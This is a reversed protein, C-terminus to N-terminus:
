IKVIIDNVAHKYFTRSVIKQKPYILRSKRSKTILFKNTLQPDVTDVNEQEM